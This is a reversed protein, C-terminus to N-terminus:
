LFIKFVRTILSQIQSMVLEFKAKGGLTVRIPQIGEEGSKKDYFRLFTQHPQVGKDTDDVIQFTLKLTDTQSLDVPTSPKHELSVRHPSILTKLLFLGAYVVVYPESRIQSGTSDIVTFRPSKLTLISAQTSLALLLVSFLSLM